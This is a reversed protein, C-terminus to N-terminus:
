SAYMMAGLLAGSCAYFVVYLVISVITWKIISKAKNPTDKKMVFYMILGALPIFFSLINLGISPKDDAILGGESTAVGCHVCVVAKDDIEKGCNKCFM